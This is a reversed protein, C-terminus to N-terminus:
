LRTSKRDLSESWPGAAVVVRGAGVPGGSTDVGTGTLATVEIGTVIELGSMLARVVRRPDAQAEHPAHIAGAIRPSLAPELRRAARPGLWEVALGLSEQFAHLRRLEEADDRDAAVVLAGSRRYGVADDGGLEAAFSPWREASALNLRLLSEAGFEAETVPALM